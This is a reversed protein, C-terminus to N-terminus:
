RLSFACFARLRAAMAAALFLTSSARVCPGAAAAGGRSAAFSLHRFGGRAVRSRQRAEQGREGELAEAQQPRAGEERADAGPDLVHREGPEDVGADSVGEVEPRRLKAWSTGSRAKMSSPPATASRM